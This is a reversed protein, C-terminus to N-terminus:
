WWSEFKNKYAKMLKKVQKRERRWEEGDKNRRMRRNHDEFYIKEIKDIVETEILHNIVKYEGGEIDLKMVDIKKDLSLIYTAIDIAKVRISKEKDIDVKCTETSMSALENTKKHYVDIYDDEIWLAAHNIIINKYKSYEEKLNRCHVPNVEFSHVECGIKSLYKLEEGKHAGGDIFVSEKGLKM